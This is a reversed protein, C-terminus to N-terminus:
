KKLLHDWIGIREDGECRCRSRLHNERGTLRASEGRDTTELSALAREGILGDQVCPKSSQGRHMGCAPSSDTKRDGTLSM